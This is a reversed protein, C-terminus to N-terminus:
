ATVPETEACERRPDSRPLNTWIPLSQLRQFSKTAVIGTKSCYQCPTYVDDGMSFFSPKSVKKLDTPKYLKAYIGM